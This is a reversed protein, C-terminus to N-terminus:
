PIWNYQRSLNYLVTWLILCCPSSWLVNITNYYKYLKRLVIDDYLTSGHQSLWALENDLKKDDGISMPLTVPYTTGMTESAYQPCPWCLSTNFSWSYMTRYFIFSLKVIASAKCYPRFFCHIYESSDSLILLTITFNTRM